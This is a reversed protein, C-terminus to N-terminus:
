FLWVRFSVGASAPKTTRSWGGFGCRCGKVCSMKIGRRHMTQM